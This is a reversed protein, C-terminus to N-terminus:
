IKKDCQKGKIYKRYCGWSCFYHTTNKKTKPDYEIYKYAYDRFDFDQNLNNDCNKCKKIVELNRYFQRSLM